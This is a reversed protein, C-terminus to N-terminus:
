KAVGAVRKIIEELSEGNVYLTGSIEVANNHEPAMYFGTSNKARDVVRVYNASPITVEYTATTYIDTLSLQLTYSQTTKLEYNGIADTLVATTNNEPATLDYWKTGDKIKLAPTVSNQGDLSDYTWRYWGAGYKGTSSENGSTDVRWAAFGGAMPAPLSYKGVTITQTKTTSLGRSDKATFRVQLEGSVPTGKSTLNLSTGTTGEASYGDADVGDISIKSSVITAGYQGAINTMNANVGILWQTYGSLKGVLETPINEAVSYSFTPGATSGATFGLSQSSEAVVTGDALTQVTVTATNGEALWSDPITMYGVTEGANMTLTATQSGCTYIVKHSADSSGAQISIPFSVGTKVSSPLTFSSAAGYYNVTIYADGCPVYAKTDTYKGNSITGAKTGAMNSIGSVTNFTNNDWGYLPFTVTKTYPSTATEAIGGTYPITFTLTSNGMAMTMPYGDPDGCRVPMTMTVSTIVSGSIGGGTFDFYNAVTRCAIYILSTGNANRFGSLFITKSAM